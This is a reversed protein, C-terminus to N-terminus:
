WLPAHVQADRSQYYACTRNPCAFGQTAIRKPAGPRSKVKCWRCGALQQMQGEGDDALTLGKIRGVVRAIHGRLHCGLRRLSASHRDPRSRRFRAGSRLQGCGLPVATKPHWAVSRQYPKNHAARILDGYACSSLM